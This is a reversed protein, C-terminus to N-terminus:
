KKVTSEQLVEIIDAITELDYHAFAFNLYEADMVILTDAHIVDPPLVQGNYFITATTGYGSFKSRSTSNNGFLLYICALILVCIIIRLIITQKM